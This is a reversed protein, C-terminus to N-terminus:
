VAQGVTSRGCPQHPAVRGSTIGERRELDRSAFSEVDLAGKLFALHGFGVTASFTSLGGHDIYSMDESAALRHEQTSSSIKKIMPPYDSLPCPDRGEATSKPRDISPSRLSQLLQQNSWASQVPSNDLAGGFLPKRTAAPAPQYHAPGQAQGPGPAPVPVSRLPALVVRLGTWAALWGFRPIYSSRDFSRKLYDTRHCVRAERLLDSLCLPDLVGIQARESMRVAILSGVRTSRGSCVLIRPCRMGSPPQSEKRRACLVPDYVGAAHGRGHAAEGSFNSGRLTPPFSSGGMSAVRM